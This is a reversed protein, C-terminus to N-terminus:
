RQASSHIDHGDTKSAETNADSVLDALTPLYSDLATSVVDTVTRRNIAAYVRLRRGLSAELWTGLQEKM